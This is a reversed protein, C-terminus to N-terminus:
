DSPVKGSSQGIMARRFIPKFLQYLVFTAAPTFIAWAVMGYCLSVWFDSLARLPAEKFPALSLAVPPAGFLWEGARIFPIFSALRLPTICLKVLQVMALNLKFIYVLAVACGCLASDHAAPKCASPMKKINDTM